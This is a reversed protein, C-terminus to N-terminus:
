AAPAMPVLEGYRLLVDTRDMHDRQTNFAFHACVASGNMVNKLGRRRPEDVALWQEEDPDVNGPNGLWSVGNISVRENRQPYFERDPLKWDDVRGAKVSALFCRHLYEAFAFDRWGVEDMCTWGVSRPYVVHGQEQHLASIMANNVINAYVLYPEPHALRYRFMNDVFGPALYVVDDDLRLYVEDDVCADFFAHIDCSTFRQDQGVRRRTAPDRPYEVVRVWENEQGLRRCYDVDEPDNTNLWVDWRDFADRQAALHGYLLQMYRRRGAPTVVVRKM